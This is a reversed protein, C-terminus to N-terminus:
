PFNKLRECSLILCFQKLGAKALVLFMGMPFGGPLWGRFDSLATRGALLDSM